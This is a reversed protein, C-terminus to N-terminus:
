AFKVSYSPSGNKGILSTPLYFTAKPLIEPNMFFCVDTHFINGYM